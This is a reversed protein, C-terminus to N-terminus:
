VLRVVRVDRYLLKLSNQLRSTNIRWQPRVKQVGDSYITHASDYYVRGSHIARLLRWIDTGECIYVEDLFKYDYDHNKDGQHPRRERQVYAASAHKKNWSDALKKFSWAALIEGTNPDKLSVQIDNPDDSFSDSSADYGDVMMTYGTIANTQQCKHVGTFVVRGDAAKGPRGFKAMFDRFSHLGEYGLDATLTM